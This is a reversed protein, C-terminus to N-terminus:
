IWYNHWTMDPGPFGRFILPKNDSPNVSKFAVERRARSSITLIPCCVIRNASASNFSQLKSIVPLRAVTLRVLSRPKGVWETRGHGIM